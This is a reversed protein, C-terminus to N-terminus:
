ISGDDTDGVNLAKAIAALHREQHTLHNTEMRHIAPGVQQMFSRVDNFFTEMSSQKKTVWRIVRWVVIVVGALTTYFEVDSATFPINLPFGEASFLFRGM